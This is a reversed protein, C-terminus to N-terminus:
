FKAWLGLKVKRENGGGLEQSLAVCLHLRKGLPVALSPGLHLTAQGRPGRTANLEAMYLLGRPRAVGLTADLKTEIQGTAIAYLAGLRLDAWANGLATKGGWGLHVATSAVHGGLGGHKGGGFEIAARFASNVPSYHLRTFSLVKRAAGTGGIDLGLTLNERLGWEAYASPYTVGYTQSFSQALSVFGTGRERPWAGALAVGPLALFLLILCLNRL